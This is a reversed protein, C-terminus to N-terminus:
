EFSCSSLKINEANMTVKFNERSVGPLLNGYKDRLSVTGYVYIMGYDTRDISSIHYTCSGPEASPRDRRIASILCIQVEKDIEEDTAPTKEAKDDKDKKEESYPRTRENNSSACSVLSFLMSLILFVALIKRVKTM